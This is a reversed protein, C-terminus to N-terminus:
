KAVTYNGVLQIVDKKDLPVYILIQERASAKDILDIAFFIIKGLKSINDPAARQTINLDGEDSRSFGIEKEFRTYSKIVIMDRKDPDTNYIVIVRKDEAKINIRRIAQSGLTDPHVSKAVEFPKYAADAYYGQSRKFDATESIWKDRNISGLLASIVTCVAGLLLVALAINSMSFFSSKEKYATTKEAHESTNKKKLYGFYKKIAVIFAIAIGLFLCSAGFLIFFIMASKFAALTVIAYFLMFAALFFAAFSMLGFIGYPVAYLIRKLASTNEKSNGMASNYGIKAPIYLFIFIYAATRYPTQAVYVKIYVKNSTM